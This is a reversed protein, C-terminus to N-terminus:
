PLWVCLLGASQPIPLVVFVSSNFVVLRFFREVVSMLPCRHEFAICPEAKRQQAFHIEYPQHKGSYSLILFGGIKRVFIDNKTTLLVQDGKSPSSGLGPSPLHCFAIGLHALVVVERWHVRGGFRFYEQL